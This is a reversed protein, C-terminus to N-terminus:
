RNYHVPREYMGRENRYISIHHGYKSGDEWTWMFTGDYEIPRFYCDWAEILGESELAENLTPFWNRKATM